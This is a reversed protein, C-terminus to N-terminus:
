KVSNIFKEKDVIFRTHYGSGIKIDDETWVSVEFVVKRKDIEHVKAHCTIKDGIKTAKLHKIKLSVGVSTLVETDIYKNILNKSTYEMFAVMSPTSYVELDGSGLSAASDSKMVKRTEKNIEGIKIKNDM